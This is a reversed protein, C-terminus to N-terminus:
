ANHKVPARRVVTVMWYKEVRLIAFFAFADEKHPRVDLRFSEPTSDVDRHLTSKMYQLCETIGISVDRCHVLRM